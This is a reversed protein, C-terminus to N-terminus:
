NGVYEMVASADTVNLSTGNTHVGYVEVYSGAALHLTDTVVLNTTDGAGNNPGLVYAYYTTGDVKLRVGREGTADAAFQLNASVRYKGTYPATLRTSNSAPDHMNNTDFTDTATFDIATFTGTTLSQAATRVARVVSDPFYVRIKGQTDSVQTTVSTFANALVSVGNVGTANSPIAIATTGSWFANGGITVGQDNGGASGGNYGIRIAANAGWSNFYNGSIRVGLNGSDLELETAGGEFYNRLFTTGTTAQIRLGLKFENGVFSNGALGNGGNGVLQPANATSEFQCGEFQNLHVPPDSTSVDTDLDRATAGSMKVHIFRNYITGGTEGTRVGTYISTAATTILINEFVSEIMGRADIGYQFSDFRLGSVYVGQASGPSLSAKRRIGAGTGASTSKIIVNDRGGGILHQGGDLEISDVLCTISSASGSKMVYVTGGPGVGALAATFAATDDTAGDCAAGFDFVNAANSSVSTWATGTDHWLGRADDTVRAIRGATGAAPLGAKTYGTTNALGTGGNEASVPTTITGTSVITSCDFGTATANWVVAKDACSTPTLAADVTSSQKNVHLSRNLQEAQQQGIMALKDLDKEVRESPFGEGTIYDSQQELPQKRLITVRTGSAPAVIFTVNGGADADVGSVTYDTDVVKAVGDVLVELHNKDTIRWTYPFATTSGNGNYDARSTVENVKALPSVPLTILGGALIICLAGLIAAQRFKM